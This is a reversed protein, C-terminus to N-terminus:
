PAGGQSEAQATDQTNAQTNSQADAQPEGKGPGGPPRNCIRLTLDSVCEAPVEAHLVVATSADLARGTHGDRVVVRVARPLEKAGTWSNRWVGDRGAYSFSVQFPARLLAVPPGFPPTANGEGPPVYMAARRMLAAGEGDTGPALSVRELGPAANPGLATRLFTLGTSTGEFVPDKTKANTPVFEAVALDAAIRDLALGIREAQEVRAIGHRWNPLWNAAIMALGSLAIGTLILAVLVEVLTFGAIPASAAARRM